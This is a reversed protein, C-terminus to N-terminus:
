MLTRIGMAMAHSLGACTLGRMVVSINKPSYLAGHFASSKLPHLERGPVPESWGTAVSVITFTVFSDSSETYPTARRSQSRAPGLTLSRQAPRSLFIAPASRATNCPLGGVISFCSRVRKMSRGPYHRPCTHVPSWVCCPFGWRHDCHPDVPLERSVPRATQPPPSARLTRRAACQEPPNFDRRRGFSPRQIWSAPTIGRQGSFPAPISFGLRARLRFSSVALTSRFGSRAPSRLVPHGNHPPIRLTHPSTGPRLRHPSGWPHVPRGFTPCPRAQVIFAFANENVWRVLTNASPM